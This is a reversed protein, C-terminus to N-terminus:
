PKTTSTVYSKMKSISTVVKRYTKTNAYKHFLSTLQHYIPSLFEIFHHVMPNNHLAHYGILLIVGLILISLATKILKKIFLIGVVILGLIFFAQM